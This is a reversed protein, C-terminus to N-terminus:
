SSDGATLVRIQQTTPPRGSLVFSEAARLPHLDRLTYLTYPPLPALPCPPCADVIM